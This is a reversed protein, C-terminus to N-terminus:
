FRIGTVLSLSHTTSGLVLENSIVDGRLEAFVKFGKRISHVYGLGAWLGTYSKAEGSSPTYTTIVVGNQEREWTLIGTPNILINASFGGKFYFTRDERLLNYRIGL